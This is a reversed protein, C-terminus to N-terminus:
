ILFTFFIFFADLPPSSYKQAWCIISEGLLYLPEYYLLNLIFTVVLILLPFWLAFSQKNM